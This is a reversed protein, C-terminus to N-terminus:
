QIKVSFLYPSLFSTSILKGQVDSHTSVRTVIDPKSFLPFKAVSHKTSQKGLLIGVTKRFQLSRAHWKVSREANVFSQQVIKKNKAANDCLTYFDVARQMRFNEMLDEVRERNRLKPKYHSLNTIWKLVEQPKIATDGIQNPLWVYSKLNPLEYSLVPTESFYAEIGTTCCNQILCDAAKLWAGLSGQREIIVNPLHSLMKMYIEDREAPHPRLVITRDALHESLYGVLAIMSYLNSAQTAHLEVNKKEEQTAASVVGNNFGGFNTNILIIRGYKASLKEAELSFVKNQPSSYLDFKPHGTVYGTQGGRSMDYENQMRGWTCLIDNENFVKPDYQSSLRYKWVNEDGKFVAGEEHLFISTFNKKQLELLRSSDNNNGFMNKGIYIGNSLYPVMKQIIDHHGIYIQRQPNALRVALDLKWELERVTTEVPLLIATKLDLM